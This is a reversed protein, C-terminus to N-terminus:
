KEVRREKVRGRLLYREMMTVLEEAFLPNGLLEPRDCAAEHIAAHTTVRLLFLAIELDPVEIAYPKLVDALFAMVEEDREGHFRRTSRPLEETFAKHLKPNVRHEAIAADVLIKLADRLNAQSRLRLVFDPSADKARRVHRRQLEAAIAEKNPFYQYLSAINVGAREAVTNTTFKEWGDKILIYAGAQLIAEVTTKAREQAPAKRPKLAKRTGM